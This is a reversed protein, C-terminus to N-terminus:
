AADVAMRRAYFVVSHSRGASESRSAGKTGGGHEGLSYTRTSHRLIRRMMALRLAVIRLRWASDPTTVIESTWHMWAAVKVVLSLWAHQLREAMVDASTSIGAKHPRRVM